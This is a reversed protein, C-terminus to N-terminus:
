FKIGLRVSPEVYFKLTTSSGEKLKTGGYTTSTETKGGEITTNTDIGTESSYDRITTTVKNEATEVTTSNETYYAKKPGKGNAFKIGLEAGLYLGKYVYFDFGTFAAVTFYHASFPKLDGNDDFGAAKEYKTVSNKIETSTIKGNDNVDYNETYSNKTEEGSWSDFKIGFEGGAYLDIRDMIPFHREYGVNISFSTNKKKTETSSSIFKNSNNDDSYRAGETKEKTESTNNLGFGLKLRLADKDTFMWRAKFQIKDNLEFVADNGKFPNFMIEASIDNKQPAYQSQASTTNCVGVIALVALFIKKM